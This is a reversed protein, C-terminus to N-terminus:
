YTRESGLVATYDESTNVNAFFCKKELSLPIIESNLNNRIAMLMKTKGERLLGDFIPLATYRYLGFLPEVKGEIEFVVADADRKPPLCNIDIMPMDVASVYIWESNSNLLGAHIGAMPGSDPFVDYVPISGEPITLIDSTKNGVAVFVQSVTEVNNWFQVARSLFTEGNYALLAKEKGFREAKGGCLILADTKECIHKKM